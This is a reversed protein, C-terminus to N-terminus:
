RLRRRPAARTEDLSRSSDPATSAKESEGDGRFATLQNHDSCSGTKNERGLPRRRMPDCCARGLSPRCIPDLYEAQPRLHLLSLFFPPCAVPALHCAVPATIGCESNMRNEDGNRMRHHQSEPCHQRSDSRPIRGQPRLHPPLSLILSAGRFGFPLHCAHHHWAGFGDPTVPWYLKEAVSTTLQRHFVLFDDSIPEYLGNFCRLRHGICPLCPANM